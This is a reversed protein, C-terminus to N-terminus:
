RVAVNEKGVVGAGVSPGPEQAFCWHRVFAQYVADDQTPSGPGPSGPSLERMPPPSSPAPAPVVGGEGDDDGGDGQNNKRMEFPVFLRRPLSPPPSTVRYHPPLPWPQPSVMKPMVTTTTTTPSATGSQRGSKSKLGGGGDRANTDSGSGSGSSPPTSSSSPSSSSSSGSSRGISFTPPQAEQQHHHHHNHHHHHHHNVVKRRQPPMLPTSVSSNSSTHTHAPASPPAIIITPTSPAAFAVTPKLGPSVAPSLPGTPTAPSLLEAEDDKKGEESGVGFGWPWYLGAAPNTSFRRSEMGALSSFPPSTGMEIGTTTPTPTSSLSDSEDGIRTGRGQGFEIPASERGEAAGMMMTAPFGNQMEMPMGIFNGNTRRLGEGSGLVDVDPDHGEMEVEEEVRQGKVPMKVDMDFDRERDQTPTQLPTSDASTNATSPEMSEFPPDRAVLGGSLPQPAAYNM